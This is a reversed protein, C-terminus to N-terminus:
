CAHRASSVAAGPPRATVKSVPALTNPDFFEVYDLPGGAGTRHGSSRQKSGRPQFPGPRNQPGAAPSTAAGALAYGGARAFRRHSVPEPFEDGAWRGGAPHAGRCDEAPLEPRAGHAERHGAQQYDKAGFVAVDPQVLNFLKAVVTTVGRFHTPRSKGEMARALNEEVRVHQLGRRGGPPYMQEDDPRSVDGKKRCLGADRALDRSLTLLGGDPLSRPISTFASSVKGSRGALRRARKVLSLHRTCTAWRRCWGSACAQRAGWGLRQMAWRGQCNADRWLPCGPRLILGILDRMADECAQDIPAEVPRDTPEVLGQALLYTEVESGSVDALMHGNVEVCPSLPQGSRENMEQRQAPDHLIDRDEFPLDYKHLVARV